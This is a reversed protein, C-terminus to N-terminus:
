ATGAPVPTARFGPLDVVRGDGARLNVRGGLGARRLADAVAAGQSFHASATSGDCCVAWGGLAELPKVLYNTM